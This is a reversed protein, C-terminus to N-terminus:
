LLDDIYTTVNFLQYSCLKVFYSYIHKKLIYESGYGLRDVIGM